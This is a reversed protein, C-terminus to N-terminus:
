GYDSYYIDMNKGNYRYGYEAPHPIEYGNGWRILIYRCIDTDMQMWLARLFYTYSLSLDIMGM